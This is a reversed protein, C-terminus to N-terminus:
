KPEVLDRALALARKALIDGQQLDNRAAAQESNKVLSRIREVRVQNAQAKPRKAVEALIRQVDALTANVQEKSISAAEATSLKPPAVTEEAPPTVTVPLPVEPVPADTPPRRAPRSTKPPQRALIPDQTPEPEAEVEKIPPHYEVPPRAPISEPPVPQPDPLQAVTQTVVVVAPKQEPAPAVPVVAKQQQATECSACCLCLCVIFPWFILNARM